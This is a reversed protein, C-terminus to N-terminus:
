MSWMFTVHLRCPLLPLPLLLRLCNILGRSVSALSFLRAGDKRKEKALTPTIISKNIIKTAYHSYFHGLSWYYEYIWTKHKYFSLFTGVNETTRRSMKYNSNLKTLKWRKKKNKKLERRSLALAVRIRSSVSFSSWGTYTLPCFSFPEVFCLFVGCETKIIGIPFLQWAIVTVKASKWQGNFCSRGKVSYM